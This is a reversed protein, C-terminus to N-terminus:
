RALELALRQRERGVAGAPELDELLAFAQSVVIEKAIGGPVLECVLAHLRCVSKNRPGASRPTAVRWSACCPRTTEVRVPTLAPARLAAIAVSRADNPDNKDSRGTGLLRVRSALTAPVDVVHRERPSSSNRWCSLRARGRVRDGVDARRRRAREAWAFLERVQDVRRAVLREGLVSERNDVAVATHTAKHPDIGIMVM